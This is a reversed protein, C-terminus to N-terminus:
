AECRAPIHGQKRLFFVRQAGDGPSARRVPRQTNVTLSDVHKHETGHAGAVALRQAVQAIGPAQRTEEFKRSGGANPWASWLATSAAM